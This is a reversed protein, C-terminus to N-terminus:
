SACARLRDGRFRPAPIWFSPARDVFLTLYYIGYTKVYDNMAHAIENGEEGPTYWNYREQVIRNTAFAQVDGYREFLNRDVKDAITQATQQFRKGVDAEIDKTAAFGIYSVVGIPIVAFVLLLVVVKPTLNLKSLYGTTKTM